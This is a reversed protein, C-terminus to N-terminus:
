WPTPRNYISVTVFSSDIGLVINILCLMSSFFTFCSKYGHVIKYLFKYRILYSIMMDDKIKIHILSM